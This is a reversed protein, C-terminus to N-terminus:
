KIAEIEDETLGLAKLKANASEKDAIKKAAADAAEQEVVPIQAQIDAISIPTTGNEWRITNLDEDTISAQADPNIKKIAELVKNILM